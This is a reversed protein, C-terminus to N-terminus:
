LYPYIVPRSPAADNEFPAVQLNLLYEGDQTQTPVFILETITKDFQPNTPVEWFAHHFALEGDDQEKDVSPLDILLHQVGLRNLLPLCDTDIYAPNTASYNMSLKETDNPLTRIILAEIKEFAELKKLCDATIVRDEGILKPEVSFLVAHFFFQKLYRNISYVEPTIHGLCETHTGHGHPNFFINRFNVAGGEKVAGIWKDSRVPEFRPADVYWARPNNEDDSLPISLDIGQSLDIRKNNETTVIM